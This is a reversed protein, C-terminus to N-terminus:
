ADSAGTKRKLLLLGASIVCFGLCIAVALTTPGVCGEQLALQNANSPDEVRDRVYFMIAIGGSSLTSIVLWSTSRTLIALLFLGCTALGFPTTLLYLAESLVTAATGNWSPRTKDCVEAVAPTPLVYAGLVLGLVHCGFNKSKGSCRLRSSPKDTKLHTGSM